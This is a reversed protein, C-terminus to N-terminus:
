LAGCRLAFAVAHTRNRLNFRSLIGHVINKVTRESYNLKAAVDSTDLGDSLLRLVEVERVALGSVTMDLPALVDRELTRLQDVLLRQTTDPFEARGTRAAVVARVIRDFGVEHRRLLCVLGSSIARLV